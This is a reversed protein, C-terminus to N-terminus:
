INNLLNNGKKPVLLVFLAVGVGNEDFFEQRIALEQRSRAGYPTYGTIDNEQPTFVIKVTGLVTLLSCIVIVLIAYKDILFAWERYGTYVLRIFKTDGPVEPYYSSSSSSPTSNEDKIHFNPPWSSSKIGDQSGNENANFIRITM